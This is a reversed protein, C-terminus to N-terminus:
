TGCECPGIDISERRSVKRKLGRNIIDELAGDKFITHGNFVPNKEHACLQVFEVPNHRASEIIYAKGGRRCNICNAHDSWEYMRPPTVGLSICWDACQQKTTGTEKVPFRIDYGSLAARMTARQVRQWEM